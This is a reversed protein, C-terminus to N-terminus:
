IQVRRAAFEELSQALGATCVQIAGFLVPRVKRLLAGLGHRFQDEHSQLLGVGLQCGRNPSTVVHCVMRAASLHTICIAIVLATLTSNIGMAAPSNTIPESLWYKESVGACETRKPEPKRRPFYGM